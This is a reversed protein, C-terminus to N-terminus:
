RCKRSEKIKQTETNVFDVAKWLGSNFSDSMMADIKLLLEECCDDYGSTRKTATQKLEPIDGWGDSPPTVYTDTM